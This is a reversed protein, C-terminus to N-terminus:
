VGPHRPVGALALKSRRAGASHMWSQLAVGDPVAGVLPLRDLSACRVQAWGLLRGAAADARLRDAAAPHMAALSSANDQHAQDSIATNDEGRAYTSGMAWIREPWEPPLGTDQYAPVFVGTQRMPRAALPATELGALTMQGKVPRLPLQAETM